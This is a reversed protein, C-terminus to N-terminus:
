RALVPLAPRGGVFTLFSTHMWGEGIATFVKAWMGTQDVGAVSVLSGKPLAGLLASGPTDEPRSRLALLGVNVEAMFVPGATGSPM